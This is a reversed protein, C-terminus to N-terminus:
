RPTEPSPTRDRRSLGALLSRCVERSPYLSFAISPPRESSEQRQCWGDKVKLHTSDFDWDLSIMRSFCFSTQIPAAQWRYDHVARLLQFNGPGRLCVTM